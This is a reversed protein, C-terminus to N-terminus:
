EDEDDDERLTWWIVGFIYLFVFLQFLKEADGM